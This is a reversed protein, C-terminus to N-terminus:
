CLWENENSEVNGTEINANAEVQEACDVDDSMLGSLKGDITASFSKNGEDYRDCLMTKGDEMSELISLRLIQTLETVYLEERVKVAAYHGLLLSSM